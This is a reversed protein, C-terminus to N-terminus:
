RFGSGCAVHDRIEGIGIRPALRRDGAHAAILFHLEGIQQLRRAFQAGFRQGGAMIDAADFARIARLKM